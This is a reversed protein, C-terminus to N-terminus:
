QQDGIDRRWKGNITVIHQHVSQLGFYGGHIFYEAKVIHDLDMFTKMSLIKVAPFFSSVPYKM